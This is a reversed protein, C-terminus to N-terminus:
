NKDMWDFFDNMYDKQTDTWTSPDQKTWTDFTKGAKEYESETGGSLAMLIILVVAVIIATLCGSGPKKDGNDSM